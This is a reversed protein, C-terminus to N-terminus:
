CPSACSSRGSVPISPRPGDEGEIAETFAVGDTIPPAKQCYRLRGTPHGHAVNMLREQLQALGRVVQPHEGQGPEQPPSSAQTEKDYRALCICIMCLQIWMTDRVLQGFHHVRAEWHEHHHMAAGKKALEDAANNGAVQWAPIGHEECSAESLHSPVFVFEIRIARCAQWLQVWLDHHKWGQPASALSHLTSARTVVWSSDSHGIMPQSWSAAQEAALVVALLEARNNTQLEGALAACFNLNSGAQYFVGLGSRTLEPISPFETSGDTWVLIGRADQHVQHQASDRPVEPPKVQSMNALSNWEELVWDPLMTVGTVRTVAHRHREWVGPCFREVTADRIYQRAPCGWFMHDKTEDLNSACRPCTTNDALDMKELQYRATSAGTLVTELIALMYKCLSGGSVQSLQKRCHPILCDLDRRHLGGRLLCATAFCNIGSESHVGSMDLRTILQWRNWRLEERLCHALFSGSSDWLRFHRGQRNQVTNFDIWELQVDALLSALNRMPGVLHSRSPGQCHHWLAEARHFLDPCKLFLRRLGMVTQFIVAQHPDVLHRKRLLTLLIEPNRLKRTKPWLASLVASRVQSTALAAPRGIECGYLFQKLPKTAVYREAARPAVGITRLLQM